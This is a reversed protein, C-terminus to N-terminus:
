FLSRGTQLFRRFSARDPMAYYSSVGRPPYFNIQDQDLDYIGKILLRGGIETIIRYLSAVSIEPSIPVVEQEFVKGEDIQSTLFFVSVGTEEEGNALVWFFVELGRYQPLISPHSTIGGFRPVSLLEDKYIQMTFLSVLLDPEYIKIQEIFQPSNVDRTFVIRINKKRARVSLTEGTLRYKMLEIFRFAIFLWSAERLLKIISAVTSKGYYLGQSIVLLFEIDPYADTIADFLRASGENDHGVLAIRRIRETRIQKTM